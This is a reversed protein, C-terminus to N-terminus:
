SRLQSVIKNPVEYRALEPGASQRWSRQASSLVLATHLSLQRTSAIYVIHGAPARLRARPFYSYRTHKRSPLIHQCPVDKCQGYMCTCTHQLYERPVTQSLKHHCSLDEFLTSFLLGITLSTQLTYFLRTIAVSITCVIDMCASYM